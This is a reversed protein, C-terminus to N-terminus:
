IHFKAEVGGQLKSGGGETESNRGRDEFPSGGSNKAEFYEFFLETKRFATEFNQRVFKKLLGKEVLKDFRDKIARHTKIKLLPLDDIVKQYSVYYFIEGNNLVPTMKGSNEFDSFWQLICADV